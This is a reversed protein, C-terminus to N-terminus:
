NDTRTWGMLDSGVSIFLTKGDRSFALSRTWHQNYGLSPLELIHEGDGGIRKSTQPDYRFRVVENTDAVYVYDDHFAIGFPLDLHDAFVERSSLHGSADTRLVVIDGAASNAVFLDGDPAVAMWRPQSFGSAFVSARFGPPVEPEFHSPRAVVVPPNYTRFLRAIVASRWGNVNFWALGAVVVLLTGIAATWLLSATRSFM